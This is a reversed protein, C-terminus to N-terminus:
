NNQQELYPGFRGIRVRAGLDKLDLAYIERPDISQAKQNVQAELGKDGLYFKRLYPLWEADGEAIEDLTQEMRATFQVDVLDPFHSELLRNVAFATFTPILQNSSKVVYGRDQITSI